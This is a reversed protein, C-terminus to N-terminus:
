NTGGYVKAIVNADTAIIQMAAQLRGVLTAMCMAEPRFDAKTQAYMEDAYAAIKKILELANANM